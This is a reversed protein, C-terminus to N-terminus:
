KQIKFQALIILNNDINQKRVDNPPIILSESICSDYMLMVLIWKDLSLDEISILM